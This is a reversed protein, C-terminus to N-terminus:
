VQDLWVWVAGLKQTNFEAYIIGLVLKLKTAKTKTMLMSFDYHFEKMPFLTTNFNNTM